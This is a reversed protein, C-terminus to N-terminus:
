YVQEVDRLEKIITDLQSDTLMNFDSEMQISQVKPLNYNLLDCYFKVRDKPSLEQFDNVFSDFNDTLFSSIVERLRSTNKNLSGKPRGESTGSIGKEFAMFNYKITILLLLVTGYVLTVISPFLNM